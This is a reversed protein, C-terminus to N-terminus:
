SQRGPSLHILLVKSTSDTVRFRDDLREGILWVIKGESELILIMEKKVRSFKRDVFYDSLKKKHKMGLPFFYDGKEWHRVLVPFSIKEIDLYAINQNDSIDHNVPANIIEASEIVPVNLLDEIINIEYYERQVTELPSVILENRNRVIRHTQTFVQKGTKGTLLRYLDGSGAGSVGFPAFIEFVVTKVAQLKLLKDVDFVITNGKLVSTQTRIEDIHAKVFDDTEALREATENLTVEVSPNIEKLVPIVLHRIKNRTYKIEANSKDERFTIDNESCYEEIKQRSAFLLPRIIRNSVPRM